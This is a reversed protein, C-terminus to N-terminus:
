AESGAEIIGQVAESTTADYEGFEGIDEPAPVSPPAGSAGEAGAALNAQKGAVYGSRSEARYETLTGEVEEAYKPIDDLSWNPTNADKFDSFLKNKLLSAKIPDGGAAKDVAENVSKIFASQQSAKLGDTLTGLQKELADLRPDPGESGVTQRQLAVELRGQVGPMQALAALMEDDIKHESQGALMQALTIYDGYQKLFREEGAQMAKGYGIDFLQQRIEEPIQDVSTIATTGAEGAGSGAGGVTGAEGAGTDASGAKQAEDPM